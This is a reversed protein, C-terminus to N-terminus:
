EVRTLLEPLSARAQSVTLVMACNYTTTRRRVILERRSSAPFPLPAAPRRPSPPAGARSRRDARPEAPRAPGQAALQRAASAAAREPRGAAKSRTGASRGLMGPARRRVLARRLLRTPAPVLLEAALVHGDHLGTHAAGARARRRGLGTGTAPVDH